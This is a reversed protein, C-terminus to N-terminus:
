TEQVLLTQSSSGVVGDIEDVIIGLLETLSAVKRNLPIVIWKHSKWSDSYEGGCHLVAPSSVEQIELRGAHGQHGRGCLTCDFM